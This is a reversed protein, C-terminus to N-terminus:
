CPRLEFDRMTLTASLWSGDYGMMNPSNEEFSSLVDLSDGPTKMVENMNENASVDAVPDWAPLEPFPGLMTNTIHMGLAGFASRKGTTDQVPKLWLLIDRKRKDIHSGKLLWMAVARVTYTGHWCSSQHMNMARLDIEEVTGLIHYAAPM